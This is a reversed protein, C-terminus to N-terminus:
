IGIVTLLACLLVGQEITNHKVLGLLALAPVALAFGGFCVPRPGLRDSLAGALPGLLSPIAITLFILGTATSNWGFTIKCFLPLVGDFACSLTTNIFSGYVAAMLRKSGLLSAMIPFHSAIFSDENGPESLPEDSSSLLSSDESNRASENDIRNNNVESVEPQGTHTTTQSISGYTTHNEPTRDWKAATGKEVMFVRLLFDFGVVGLVVAFVTWYGCETYIVGGLLPGVLYGINLGMMVVGMWQGLDDRGVTDVLLALGVTYVVGASAGQLCRAVILVAPSTAAAFM